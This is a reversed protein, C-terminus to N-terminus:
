DVNSKTVVDDIFKLEGERLHQWRAIIKGQKDILVYCPISEVNYMNDVNNQSFLGKEDDISILQIWSEMKYKDIADRWNKRDSEFSINIIQLKEVYKENLEKVLPMGKLCPNCWSAWFDLLIYKDERLSIFSVTDGALNMSIFNPALDGVKANKSNIMKDKILKRMLYNEKEEPLNRSIQAISDIDIFGKETLLFLLDPVILLSKNQLVFDYMISDRIALEGLFQERYEGMAVFLSDPANGSQLEIQDIVNVISHGLSQLMKSNEHMISRLKANEAEVSSGVLKYDMMNYKAVKLSLEKPELYIRIPYDDIRLYAGILGDIEGNFQFHNNVIKASDVIEIWANDRFDLYVLWAYEGEDVHGDLRFKNNEESKNQCGILSFLLLLLFSKFISISFTNM